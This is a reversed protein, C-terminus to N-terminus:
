KSEQYEEEINNEEMLAKRAHLGEEMKKGMEKAEYVLESIDTTGLEWLLDNVVSIYSEVNQVFDEFYEATVNTSPQKKEIDRVYSTLKSLEKLIDDHVTCIAKTM